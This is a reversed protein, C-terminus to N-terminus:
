RAHSGFSSFFGPGPSGIGSVTDYGAGCALHKTSSCQGMTSLTPPQGYAPGYVTAETVNQGQPSGTVDHFAATNAMNYLAPNAFGLAIGGRGQILDAEFGTFMPSSLSTGGNVANVYVIKGHGEPVSLGIQYGLNWDGLDSVDPVDRMAQGKEINGSVVGQQYYPEPFTHSVGGTSGERFSGPPQPDWSQGNKSLGTEESEWGTEWLNKGRAGIALSTGGITTIWPDSGPYQLPTQDGYDGTAFNVTIGEVAARELVGEWANIMSKPVPMYGEFWSSSVVNAIGYSVVQDLSDLLRDGTIKGNGVVYSVRADPAMGHSSEIDLASEGDGIGNPVHSAIDASYQGPRFPPFGREKAWKNADSLATSDNDESLIALSVGQGTLGSKTAGYASRLQQPLYGCPAWAPTYGYAGPLSSAKKQGYYASCEEKIKKAAKSGPATYDMKKLPEHQGLPIAATAVRVTSVTSGLAAPVSMPGASVVQAIADRPRSLELRARLASEARATSGSASVTFASSSTVHLGSQRLWGAVARQQAATAGYRTRVQAATLYHEYSRSAPNSVATAEAALAAQDRGVFVSVQVQSAPALANLSSEYQGAVPATSALVARAGPAPGATSASAVGSALLTSAATVAVFATVAQSRNRM